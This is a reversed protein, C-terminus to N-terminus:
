VRSFKHSCVAQQVVSNERKKKKKKGRGQKTFIIAIEKKGSLFVSNNRQVSRILVYL